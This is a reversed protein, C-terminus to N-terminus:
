KFSLNDKKFASRKKAFYSLQQITLTVNTYWLKYASITIAHLIVTLVSSYSASLRPQFGASTVVIKRLTIYKEGTKISQIKHM